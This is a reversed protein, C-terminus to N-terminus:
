EGHPTIKTWSKGGDGSKWLEILDAVYVIQGDASASVSVASFARPGQIDTTKWGALVLALIGIIVGILIGKGIEGM